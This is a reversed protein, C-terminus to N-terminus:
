HLLGHAAADAAFSAALGYPKFQPEKGTVGMVYGKADALAVHSECEPRSNIDVHIEWIRGELVGQLNGFAELAFAVEQMMRAKLNAMKGSKIVRGYDALRVTADFVKCGHYVGAGSSKRIVVVTSYVAWAKGKAQKRVSDCGIMIVSEPHSNRIFERICDYDLDMSPVTM